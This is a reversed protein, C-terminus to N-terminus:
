INKYKFQIYLDEGKLNDGVSIIDITLYEDEIMNFEPNEVTLSSINESFTFSKVINGNKKINININSDAVSALKSKIEYITIDFPAYWRETGTTIELLGNQHFNFVGPSIKSVGTTDLSTLFSLINSTFNVNGEPINFVLGGTENSSIVAGGIDISNASVYLTGFRKDPSGINIQNSINPIIDNTLITYGNVYLNGTTSLGGASGTFGPFETPTSGTYGVSGQSGTYGLEGRSGTFGLLQEAQLLSGISIRSM